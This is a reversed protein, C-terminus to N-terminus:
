YKRNTKRNTKRRNTKRKNNRRRQTKRGKNRRYGGKPPAGAGGAAGPYAKSILKIWNILGDVGTDMETVEESHKIAEACFSSLSDDRLNNIEAIHRLFSYVKLVRAGKGIEITLNIEVFKDAITNAAAILLDREEPTFITNDTYTPIAKFKDYAEGREANKFYSRLQAEKVYPDGGSM